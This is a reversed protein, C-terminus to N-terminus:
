PLREQALYTALAQKTARICHLVDVPHGTDNRTRVVTPMGAWSAGSAWYAGSAFAAAQGLHTDEVKPKVTTRAAELHKAVTAVGEVTWFEAALAALEKRVQTKSRGTHVHVTDAFHYAFVCAAYARRVSTPNAEFEAITPEVLERFYESPTV